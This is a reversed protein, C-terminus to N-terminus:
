RLSYGTCLLAAGRSPFLLSARHVRVRSVFSLYSPKSENGQQEEARQAGQSQPFLTREGRVEEAQETEEPGAQEQERGPCPGQVLSPLLASVEDAPDKGAQNEGQGIEQHDGGRCPQLADESSAGKRHFRVPVSGGVPHFAFLSCLGSLAEQFSKSSSVFM